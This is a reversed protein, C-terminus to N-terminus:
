ILNQEEYPPQNENMELIEIEKELKYIVDCLDRMCKWLEPPTELSSYRNSTPDTQLLTSTDHYIKKLFTSKKQLVSRKTQIKTNCPKPIRTQPPQEKHTSAVVTCTMYVVVM